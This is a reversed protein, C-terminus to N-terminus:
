RKLTFHSSFTTGDILTAKFWYDSSPLPAGNFTGDWGPGQPSIQKLLKGYRDFIFIETQPEFVVSVGILQWYDNFGDNNPTFFRPYGVIVFDQTTIGCGNRDRVYATYFGPALNEFTSSDQFSDLPDIRYEYSGLGTVNITARGTPNAGANITDISTITAPESIIVTVVRQRSCGEENFVTVRYEGGTTVAISETTEGTNWLYTYDSATGTLLGSNIVLAQPDNGCYDHLDTLVIFPLENVTLSVESIGFCNGDSSEARAFIIQNFPTTNTYSLPLENQKTLADNNTAYYAVTVNAPANILVNSDASSLDFQALGDEIGDDDCTSLSSDQADSASVELTVAATTFCGTADDTVRAIITQSVSNNTYSINDLENSNNTADNVNIFYSVSVGTAGGAITDDFSRLNFITRGDLTGDEDCQFAAFDNAVPKPNVILQFSQSTDACSNELVNEIRVYITENFAITNTYNLPLPTINLDADNQSGHYTVNFDTPSQTALITPTQDNLNFIAFGDFDDDCVELENVPNSVPQDFRIIEFSTTEYCIASNSNYIRAIITQQQTNMEFPLTINGRNEDASSQRTFYRITFLNRDQTGLIQPTAIQELDIIEIGNLDADCIIIDQITNAVPTDYIQVNKRYVRTSGGTTLSLVVNYIGSAPYVHTPNELTSTTGDGFDWLVSDPPTDSQFEFTTGDGLCLNEVEILAFFSQIFPPLGQTSLRGALPIADHQYNCGTGAVNPNNIVGLFPRGIDYTDALARYIKGDIGLQLSGRYGARTDIELGTLVPAALNAATLEYQFLSSSHDAPINSGVGNSATVYLLSGDPSFEAGYGSTNFTSFSIRRENSVIGTSQDYDYIYTGTQMTCSVLYRGDPSIKLNGRRDSTPSAVTSVVPTVNVGTASVTFTYFSDFNGFGAASAFATVLIEDNVAHNIATLKEAARPILLTPNNIDTTVRGLGSNGTMDVEYYHVGEAGGFAPLDVTFIYYIDADQPKPIIIASQTSSPNGRLGVGNQMVQHTRDYVTTGDTYFLLQGNEDSITACGENTSVQGDVLPTVAGTTPNFNIGANFGFYWNSAQLQAHVTFGTLSIGWLILAILIKIKQM